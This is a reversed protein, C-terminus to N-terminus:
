PVPAVAPLRASIPMTATLMVTDGAIRKRSAISPVWRLTLNLPAKGAVTAGYTLVPGLGFDRGEFGNLRDALPGEDDGLQQVLALDVGAGFGSNFRKSAVADFTLVPASRYDTAKNRSNVHVGLQGSLEATGDASLRTLALSPVATWFNNGLNNLRGARYSGTPAFLTLKFAGHTARNLSRGAIIPTFGLDHIGSNSQDLRRMGPGARVSATVNLWVIPM